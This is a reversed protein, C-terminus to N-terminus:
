LPRIRRSVCFLKVLKRDCKRANGISHAVNPVAPQACKEQRIDDGLSPRGMEQYVIFESVNVSIAAVGQMEGKRVLHPYHKGFFAPCLLMGQAFRPINWICIEHQKPRSIRFFKLYGFQKQLLGPIKSPLLV